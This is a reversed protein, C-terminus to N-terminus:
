PSIAILGYTAAARPHGIELPAETKTGRSARDLCGAFFRELFIQDGRLHGVLGALIGAGHDCFDERDELGADAGDKPLAVGHGRARELLLETKELLNSQDIGAAIGFDGVFGM